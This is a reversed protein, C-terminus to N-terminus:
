QAFPSFEGLSPYINHDRNEATKGIKTLFQRKESFFVLKVILNPLFRATTQTFFAM